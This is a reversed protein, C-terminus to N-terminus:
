DRSLAEQVQENLRRELGATAAELQAFWPPRQSDRSLAEQVQEELRRLAREYGANRSDAQETRVATHRLEEALEELKVLQQQQETRLEMHQSRWQVDAESM